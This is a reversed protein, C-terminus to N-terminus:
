ADGHGEPRGGAPVGPVQDLEDAPDGLEGARTGVPRSVLRGLQKAGLVLVAAAALAFLPMRGPVAAGTAWEIATGLALAVVVVVVAGVRRSM